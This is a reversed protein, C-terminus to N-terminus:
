CFGVCALRGVFHVALALLVQNGSIRIELDVVRHKTVDLHHDARFRLGTVRNSDLSRYAFVDLASAM